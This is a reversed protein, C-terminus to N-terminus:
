ADCLSALLMLSKPVADRRIESSNGDIIIRLDHEFVEFHLSLGSGGM